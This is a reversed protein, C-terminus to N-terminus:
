APKNATFFKELAALPAPRGFYYGQFNYCGESILFDRQAQTEVGEAIVTMGLSKGLAVTARVIAADKPNSLAEHLFSQDIKLQDLPLRKLYSLSSYGTGFDDLSFGVGQAKLALMKAITDEIDKVLLSETLELKLRHPPAATRGIAELVEQVFNDRHLQLASVNVSITLHASQPQTAWQRLQRCATELVWQGLPLILRTDEALPIFDAPSVMGRQPHQWRVLAEVGTLRGQVDVQPQYHLLFQNEQLGARLDSELEARENIAAQMEPDFFRLTNRGADKAQYLALDARKLLEDVSDQNVNFLAVGVSASGHHTFHSFRYPQRLTAL